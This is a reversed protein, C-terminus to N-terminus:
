SLNIDNTISKELGHISFKTNKEIMVAERVDCVGKGGGRFKACIIDLGNEVPCHSLPDVQLKM